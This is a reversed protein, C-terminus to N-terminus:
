QQSVPTHLKSNCRSYSLFVSCAPPWFFSSAFISNWLATILLSSSFCYSFRPVVCFSTSSAAPLTASLVCFSLSLAMFSVGSFTLILSSAAARHVFTILLLTNLFCALFVWLGPYICNSTLFFLISLFGNDSSHTLPFKVSSLSSQCFSSWLCQSSTYM